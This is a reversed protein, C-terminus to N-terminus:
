TENQFTSTASVTYSDIDSADIDSGDFCFDFDESIMKTLEKDSTTCIFYFQNEPITKLITRLIQYLRNSFDYRGRISVFDLVIDIDDIIVLSKGSEHANEIINVVFEAKGSETKKIIDMAQIMRTYGIKGVLQCIKKMISTKGTKPEMTLLISLSKQKIAKEVNAKEADELYTHVDDVTSETIEIGETSKNSSLLGFIKTAIAMNKNNLKIPSSSISLEKNGYSPIIDVIAKQFHENTVIVETDRNNNNSGNVSVLYDGIAYSSANDVVAEIEAGSFNNTKGVLDDIDISSEILKNNRMKDMHINFIQKRGKEDPLSIKVKIGLRGPRILAEDLLDLRNTMGIVFINPLSNVGDLLTLLQNVMSDGVASLSSGRQKCIADIEDFIFVHLPSKEKDKDYNERAAKFINRLNEESQGVYKNLLEPGNIVIPPVKSLLKGLNRAILTKGTGPPGYLILGKAHKIGLRSVMESSIARTGMARRLINALQNDLGGIGITEFSFDPQFLERSMLNEDVIQVCLDDSKLEIKTNVSLIGTGQTVRIILDNECFNMVLVQNPNFYIDAMVAKLLDSFTEPLIQLIMRTKDTNNASVTNSSVNTARVSINLKLLQCFRRNLHQVITYSVSDGLKLNCRTRVVQNIAITGPNISPHAVSAYIANKDKQDKLVLYLEDSNTAFDQKCHYLVNNYACERNPVRVVIKKNEKDAKDAKDVKDTQM